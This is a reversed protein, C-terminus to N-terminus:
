AAARDTAAPKEGAAAPTGTMQYLATALGCLWYISEGFFRVSFFAATLTGILGLQLGLSIFYIWDPEAREKRVKHLVYFTYGILAVFLILGQIGWDVAVQIYTNHSSRGEEQDTEKLSPIYQPSLVHFGRGGAGFPYDWMMPGAGGWLSLRSQASNDEPSFITMQREVFEPDSLVYLASVGVIAGVIIRKRLGRRVLVLAGLLSMSLGLTAGRSNTLVVLNLILPLSIVATARLWWSQKLFVYM